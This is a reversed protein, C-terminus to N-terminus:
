TCACCFLSCVDSTEECVFGARYMDECGEVVIVIIIITIIITIIIIM